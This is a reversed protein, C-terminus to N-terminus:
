KKVSLATQSQALQIRLEQNEAELERIRNEAEEMAAKKRARSRAAAETNKARLLIKAEDEEECGSSKRRIPIMHESSHGDDQMLAAKRKRGRQLRGSLLPTDKPPPMDISSSVSLAPAAPSATMSSVNFGRNGSTLILSSADVFVEPQNSRDSFDQLAHATMGEPTSSPFLTVDRFMPDTSHSMEKLSSLSSLSNDRTLYPSFSSDFDHSVVTDPTDILSLDPTSFYSQAPSQGFLDVDCFLQEDLFYLDCQQNSNPGTSEHLNLRVPRHCQSSDTLSM